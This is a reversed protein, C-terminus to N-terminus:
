FNNDLTIPFLEVYMYKTFFLFIIYMNKGFNM